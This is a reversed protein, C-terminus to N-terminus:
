NLKTILLSNVEQSLKCLVTDIEDDSNSDSPMSEDVYGGVSYTNGVEDISPISIHSSTTSSEGDNM